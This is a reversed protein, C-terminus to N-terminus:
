QPLQVTKRNNGTKGAIGGLVRQAFCGTEDNPLMSALCKPFFMRMWDTRLLKQLSVHRVNVPSMQAAYEKLAECPAVFGNPQITIRSGLSCRQQTLSPVLSFPAGLRIFARDEPPLRRVIKIFEGFEGPTMELLDRNRKGRGQPVFMLIGLRSLGIDKAVRITEGLTYYNKKLPVFHGTCLIGAARARRVSEVLNHFSGRTGTISDHISASPGHLGFAFRSVFERWRRFDDIAIPVMKTRRSNYINGSTYVVVQLGRSHAYRAITEFDSRLIPEGGSICVRDAGVAECDAIITLWEETTLEYPDCDGGNSSCMLCSLPCERTIEM